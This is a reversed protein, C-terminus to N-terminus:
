SDNRPASARLTAFLSRRLLRLCRYLRISQKAESVIVYHSIAEGEARLSAPLLVGYSLFDVAASVVMSKEKQSIDVRFCTLGEVM